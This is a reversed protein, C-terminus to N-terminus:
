LHDDTGEKTLFRSILELHHMISYKKVVGLGPYTEEEYAKEFQRIGYTDIKQTRNWSVLKEDAEGFKGAVDQIDDNSDSVFHAIQLNHQEDFYVVHIVVAYPAFGSESYASGVISYDSFGTFGDERYFLHDASFFEFPTDAYDVNRDRKVFHDELLVRNRRVARRFVGQDPTLTCRPVNGGTVSAYVPLQNPDTCILILHDFNLGRKKDEMALDESLHETVYYTPIICPEALLNDLNKRNEDKEQALDDEWSGVAPNMIFALERGRSVFANLTSVLTSSYRVPELVPVVQDCLLDKEMCERLAILEFQRGRFIPYYM